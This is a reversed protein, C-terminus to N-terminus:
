LTKAIRDDLSELLTAAYPLAPRTKDAPSSFVWMGGLLPNIRDDFPEVNDNPPNIIRDIENAM